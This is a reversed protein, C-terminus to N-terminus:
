DADKELEQLAHQILQDAPDQELALRYMAMAAELQGRERYLDGLIKYAWKQDPDINIAQQLLAEAADPVAEVLWRVQALRIHAWYHNPRHAVVWEFDPAATALDGRLRWSEGRTYHAEWTRDSQRFDDEALALNLWYDSDAWAEALYAIRGLRLALDSVGVQEFQGTAYGTQYYDIATATEGIDELFRAAFYWTDAKDGDLSIAREYWQRAADTQGQAMNLAAWHHMEAVMDLNYSAKQWDELAPREEEQWLHAYGLGRWITSDLHPTDGVATVLWKEANAGAQLPEITDAAAQNLWYYAVNIRFLTKLPSANLTLLMALFLAAYLFPRKHRFITQVHDM